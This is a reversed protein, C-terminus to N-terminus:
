DAVNKSIEKSLNSCGYVPGNLKIPLIDNGSPLAFEDQINDQYKYPPVQLGEDLGVPMRPGTGKPFLGALQSVVSMMTRNYDTSYVEVESHNYSPKLFKLNDIYQSRLLTGLTYHQRM